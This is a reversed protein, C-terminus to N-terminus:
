SSLRGTGLLLERWTEATTDPRKTQIFALVSRELEIADSVPMVGMARAIIEALVRLDFVTM